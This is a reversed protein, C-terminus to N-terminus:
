APSSPPRELKVGYLFRGREGIDRRWAIRAPIEDVTEGEGFDYTVFITDGAKINVGSTFCAGSESVNETTTSEARGDELRIHIRFKAIIREERRREAKVPPPGTAADSVSVPATRPEADEELPRFKWETSAGCKSCERTLFGVGAMIRFQAWTLEAMEASLCTACELLAQVNEEPPAEPPKEPFSIQWFSNGSELCEVGWGSLGSSLEEHSDCVRFLCSQRTGLHTITIKDGPRLPNKFGIFAGYRNVAITFTREKFPEGKFDTGEVEIPVKLLIRESRRQKQVVQPTAVTRREKLDAAKEAETLLSPKLSTPAADAIGVAAALSSKQQSGGAASPPMPIGARAGSGANPLVEKPGGTGSLVMRWIIGGVLLLLGALAIPLNMILGDRM